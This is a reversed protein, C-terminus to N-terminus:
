HKRLCFFTEPTNESNYISCGRWSIPICSYSVVEEAEVEEAGDIHNRWVECAEWEAQEESNAEVLISASLTVKFLRSMKNEM